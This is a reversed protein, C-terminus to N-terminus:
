ENDSVAKVYKAYANPDFAKQAEAIRSLMEDYDITGQLYDDVIEEDSEWPPVDLIGYLVYRLTGLESLYEHMDLRTLEYLKNLKVTLGRLSEALLKTVEQKEM